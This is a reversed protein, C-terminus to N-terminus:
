SDIPTVTELTATEPAVTPAPAVPASAPAVAPGSHPQPPQQENPKAEPQSPTRQERLQQRAASLKQFCENYSARLNRLAAEQHVYQQQLANYLQQLAAHSQQLPICSQQLANHAQELQQHKPMFADLDARTRAIIRQLNEVEVRAANYQQTLKEVQERLVANDGRM